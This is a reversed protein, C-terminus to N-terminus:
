VFIGIPGTVDLLHASRRAATTGNFRLIAIGSDSAVSFSVKTQGSPSAM